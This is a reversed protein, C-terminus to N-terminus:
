KLIKLINEQNKTKKGKMSNIQNQTPTQDHDLEGMVQQYDNKKVLKFEQTGHNYFLFQKAESDKSSLWYKDQRTEKIETGSQPLDVGESAVDGFIEKMLDSHNSSASDNKRDGNCEYPMEKYKYRIKGNKRYPFVLMYKYQGNRKLLAKNWRNLQYKRM